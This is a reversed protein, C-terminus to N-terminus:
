SPTRLKWYFIRLTKWRPITSISYQNIHIGSFGLSHLLVNHVRILLTDNEWEWANLHAAWHVRHWRPSFNLELVLFKLFCYYLVMYQVNYLAYKDSYFGHRRPPGIYLRDAWSSLHINICAPFEIRDGNQNRSTMALCLLGLKGSSTPKSGWIWKFSLPFVFNFRILQYLKYTALFFRRSTNNSCVM